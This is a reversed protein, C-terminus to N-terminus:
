NLNDIYETLLDRLIVQTNTYTAPRYYEFYVGFFVYDIIAVTYNQSDVIGSTNGGYYNYNSNSDMYKKLMAGSMQYVIVENEFPFVQFVDGVTIDGSDISARVGGTNMISIDADFEDLMSQCAYQGLKSKGIGGASTGIVLNAQNIVDMHKDIVDDLTGDSAFGSTYHLTGDKNVIDNNNDITLQLQAFTQGNGGNQLVPVVDGDTGFYSEDVRQHSHACFIADVNSNGSYNAWKQLSAAVEDSYDHVAVIVIECGKQTRLESAYSSVLTDGNIFNYPNSHTALISSEQYEGILGIIGVKIGAVEVITYPEIWSPRVGTAKEIINAGLFPFNAEGNAPNGDAYRAIKDLGWDFEHNGLVFCDFNMANLAELMPLGYQTSSVYTGQFIDGNAIKIAYDGSLSNIGAAIKDIGNDNKYFDGHNDNISFVNLVINEEDEGGGTNDDALKYDTVMINLYRNNSVGTVYGAIDVTKGNYEGWAEEPYTVSGTLGNSSAFQFNVYSGDISVVGKVTVYKITVNSSAFDTAVLEVATPHTVANGTSLVQVTSYKGFQTANAYTSTTGSVTVIDGVNVSKDWSSGLYVLIMGTDDKVIFSQANRAVVLGKVTCTSGSSGLLTGIDTYQTGDSHGACKDACASDTCTQDTCKGCIDCKSECTHVPQHGECKDACVSETCATDLCKGCIDCKSECTHVPQHGPCKEACVSETCATDLCKGCIDCKSECTHVPQHGECKNACASDTCTQDTCKGCIDCVSECTHVPQHGECKDACASDTCTQDTCKGCIDCKSECSHPPVHGTCKQACASDTCDSDLCKGCTPCVSECSHAPTHGPCKEACVSEACSTDLCKGCIDCKSECSHAPVHGTCKNACASESCDENTCKGCLYCKSQCTHAPQHGECKEACASDTCTQDTCKGCTECVSECSHAPQHGACKDACASDTCDNDLCKGCIPCVSECSHAPAHGPCKQACASDTCSTDTCNGCTECKSTCSHPANYTIVATWPSHIFRVNDGIARVQISQGDALEFYLQDKQLMQTKGASSIEYGIANPVVTWRAVNGVLTVTPANLPTKVGGILQDCAVLSLCIAMVLLLILIGKLKKM